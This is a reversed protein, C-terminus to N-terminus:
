RIPPTSRRTSRAHRAPRRRRALLRPRRHRRLFERRPERDRRALRRGRRASEPNRGVIMAVAKRGESLGGQELGEAVDAVHEYLSRQALLTSALLALPLLGLPGLGPLAALDRDLRLRHDRLAPHRARRRGAGQAGRFVRDRPEPQRDLAAILAGLWTVPHGIRAYLGKPYGLAAEIVLAALLLLLTDPPSMRPPSSRPQLSIQCPPSRAVARASNGSAGSGQISREVPILGM